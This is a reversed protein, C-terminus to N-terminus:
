SQFFVFRLIFDWHIPEVASYLPRSFYDVFQFASCCFNGLNFILSFFLSFFFVSCIRLSRHYWLLLYLMLTMPTELPSSSFAPASFISPFFLAWFSGLNPLLFFGVCELLQNFELCPSGLSMRVMFTYQIKDFAKESNISIIMHSKNQRNIHHIVNSM